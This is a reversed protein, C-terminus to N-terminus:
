DGIAVLAIDSTARIEQLMEPTADRAFSDKKWYRVSAFRGDGGLLEVTAKLLRRANWKSNDLVALRLGDISEVRPAPQIPALDVRGRPDFVVAGGPLKIESM